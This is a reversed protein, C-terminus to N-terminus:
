NEPFLILIRWELAPHVDAKLSVPETFIISRPTKKLPRKIVSNSDIRIEISEIGDYLPLYMKFERMENAMDTILKSENEIGTPRGTNLYQWNGKNNFYLDGGKIGTEAMHNMKTNNKVTWKVSISTSNSLFRISIGASSKSLEWV